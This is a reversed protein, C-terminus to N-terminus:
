AAMLTPAAVSAPGKAAIAGAGCPVRVIGRTGKGLTSDIELTAGILGCLRHALPLGLGAGAFRSVSQDSRQMFDEFLTPLLSPEIGPGTDAVVIEVSQDHDRLLRRASVRITGDKTFGLANTILTDVVRMLKLGDTLIAGIAPEVSVELMNNAARASDTHKSISEAILADLAVDCIDVKMKGADIKSLDLISNVICLLHAGAAHIRDLDTVIQPENEPDADELLIQSYGIVANLPTRLEHSMRALFESKAAGARDAEAAAARLEAATALHEAVEGELETQSNLVRSYFLAMMSVYISASVISIVGIAQLGEISVRSSTEGFSHYAIVFLFGNVAVQSLITAVTKPKAGLYFFALLPVTVLWPLFPSSIGGYFFCGWLIAFLLNQISIYSLLAYCGTLRLAAPYLWFSTISVALVPLPSSSSRDIFFLFGPIVNGLFPGFLHSFLFMRARTRMERDALLKEPIFWDIFRDTMSRISMSVTWVGVYHSSQM